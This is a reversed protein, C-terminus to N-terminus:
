VAWRATMALPTASPTARHGAAVTPALRRPWLPFRVTVMMLLLLFQLPDVRAPSCSATSPPPRPRTNCSPATRSAPQSHSQHPFLSRQACALRSCASCAVGCRSKPFFRVTSSSANRSRGLDSKRVCNLFDFCVCLLTHPVRWDFGLSIRLSLRGQGAGFCELLNGSSARIEIASTYTLPRDTVRCKSRNITSTARDEM